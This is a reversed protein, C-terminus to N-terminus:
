WNSSGTVLSSRRLIAKSMQVQTSRAGCGQFPCYPFVLLFILCDRVHNPNDSIFGLPHFLGEKNVPHDWWRWILFFYQLTLLSFWSSLWDFKGLSTNSTRCLRTQAGKGMLAQVLHDKSTEELRPQETIRHDDVHQHSPTVTVWNSSLSDTSNACWEEM